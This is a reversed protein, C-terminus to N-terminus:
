FSVGKIVFINGQKGGFKSSASKGLAYGVTIFKVLPKIIRQLRRLTTPPSSVLLPSVVIDKNEPLDVHTESISDFPNVNDDSITQSSTGPVMDEPESVDDPVNDHERIMHYTHYM